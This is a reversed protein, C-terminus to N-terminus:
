ENDRYRYMDRYLVKETFEIFLYYLYKTNYVRCIFPLKSM